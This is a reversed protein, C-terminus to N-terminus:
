AGGPMEDQGVVSESEDAIGGDPWTPPDAVVVDCGGSVTEVELKAASKFPM